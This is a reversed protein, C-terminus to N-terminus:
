NGNLEELRAKRRSDPSHQHDERGADQMPGDMKQQGNPDCTRAQSSETSRGSVAGRCGWVLKNGGWRSPHHLEIAGGTTTSRLLKAEKRCTSQLENTGKEQVISIVGNGGGGSTRKTTSDTM